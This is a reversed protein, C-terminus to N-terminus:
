RDDGPGSASLVGRGIPDGVPPPYPDRFTFATPTPGESALRALRVAAEDLTPRHGAPVWWLVQYAGLATHRFWERRRRLAELHGSRYVYERLAEVSEWVSMNVMVGLGPDGADAPNSPEALRLGTSDEGADDVLRWVFGPARDALANLEKLGAMFGAMRPDDLPAVPRAVNLQALHHTTPM